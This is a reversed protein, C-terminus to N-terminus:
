EFYPKTSVWRIELKTWRLFYKRFPTQIGKWVKKLFNTLDFLKWFKDFKFWKIKKSLTYWLKYRIPCKRNRGVKNVPWINERHWNGKPKSTSSKFCKKSTSYVPSQFIIWMFLQEISINWAPSDLFHQRFYKIETQLM